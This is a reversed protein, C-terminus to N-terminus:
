EPLAKVLHAEAESARTKDGSSYRLPDDGFLFEYDISLNELASYSSFNMSKIVSDEKWRLRFQQLVICKLTSKHQNLARMLGPTSIPSMGNNNIFYDFSDLAKATGVFPVLHETRLRSGSRLSISNFNTSRPKLDRFWPDPDTTDIDSDYDSISKGEIMQVSPWKTIVALPKSTSCRPRVKVKKLSMFPATVGTETRHSASSLGDYVYELFPWFDEPPGLGAFKLERLNPLQTLMLGLIAWLPPREMLDGVWREKTTGYKVVAHILHKIKILRSATYVCNKKSRLEIEDKQNYFEFSRVFNAKVHDLLLTFALKLSEGSKDSLNRYLLPLALRYFQRNVLLLKLKFKPHEDKCAAELICLILEEPLDSLGRPPM